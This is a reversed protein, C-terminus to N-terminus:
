SGIGAISSIMTTTFSIIKEGIWNGFFMLAIGMGFLKPLFTLTSEQIQTAAQFM